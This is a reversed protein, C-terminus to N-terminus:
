MEGKGKKSDDNDARIENVLKVRMRCGGKFGSTERHTLSFNQHCHTGFVSPRLWSIRNLNLMGSLVSYTM